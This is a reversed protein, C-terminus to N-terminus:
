KNLGSETFWATGNSDLTIATPRSGPLTLNVEGIYTYSPTITGIHGAATEVFWLTGDRPDTVTQTPVSNPTPTQISTLIQAGAPGAAVACLAALALSHWGRRRSHVWMSNEQM